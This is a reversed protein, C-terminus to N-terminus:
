EARRGPPGEGTSPDYTPEDDPPADDRPPEPARGRKGNPASPRVRICTVTEGFAECTTPYLTIRKGVWAMAEAGHLKGIARANTRNLGLRKKSGKRELEEFYITPMPEPGSDTPRDEVTIRSVTLSVDKGVLDEAILWESSFMPKGDITPKIKAKGRAM